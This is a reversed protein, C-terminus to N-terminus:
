LCIFNGKIIHKISCNELNIKREEKESVSQLNNKGKQKSNLAERLLKTSQKRSQNKNKIERTDDNEADMLDTIGTTDELNVEINSYHISM